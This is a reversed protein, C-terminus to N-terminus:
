KNIILFIIKPKIKCVWIIFLIGKHGFHDEEDHLVRFKDFINKLCINKKLFNSKQLKNKKRYNIIIIFLYLFIM